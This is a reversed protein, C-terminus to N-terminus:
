RQWERVDGESCWLYLIGPCAGPLQLFCATRGTPTAIRGTPTTGPAAHVMCSDVPLRNQSRQGLRRGAQADALCPDGSIGLGQFWRLTPLYVLGM